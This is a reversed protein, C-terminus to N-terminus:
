RPPRPKGTRKRAGKSRGRVSRNARAKERREIELTHRIIDLAEERSIQRVRDESGEQKPAATSRKSPRQRPGDLLETVHRESLRKPVPRPRKREQMWREAIGRLASVTLKPEIRRERLLEARLAQRYDAPWQEVSTGAWPSPAPLYRVDRPQARGRYFTM